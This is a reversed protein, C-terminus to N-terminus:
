RLTVVKKKTVLIPKSTKVTQFSNVYNIKIYDNETDYYQKSLSYGISHKGSNLRLNNVKTKRGSNSELNIYDIDNIAISVGKHYLTIAKLQIKKQTSLIFSYTTKSKLNPLGPVVLHKQADQTKLSYCGMLLTVLVMSLSGLKFKM